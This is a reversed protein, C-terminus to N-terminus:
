DSDEDDSESEEDSEEDEDESGSEESEDVEDKEVESEVEDELKFSVNDIKKLIKRLDKEKKNSIVWSKLTGNWSARLTKLEEKIDMTGLGKILMSKGGPHNEVIIEKPGSETKAKYSSVPSKNLTKLMSMIEDLKENINKIEKSSM